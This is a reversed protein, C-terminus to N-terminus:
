AILAAAFERPSASARGLLGRLAAEIRDSAEVMLSAPASVSPTESPTEAASTQANAEGLAALYGRLRNLRALLLDRDEPLLKPESAAAIALVRVWHICVLVGPLADARPVLSIMRAAHMPLLAIRLDQMAQDARRMAALPATGTGATLADRSADIVDLLRAILTLARTRIHHSTPLPVIWLATIFTACAGIATEILRTGVISTVSDGLVGYVLGLMLTLFFIGVAYNYLVFYAWGFLCIMMGAIVLAPHTPVFAAVCLGALAGCATGAIRLMGKQVTDGASTTGLSIVFVTIIAWYWHDPSLPYGACTAIASACITRLMARWALPPSAQASSVANKEGAARKRGMVAAARTLAALAARWEAMNGATPPEDVHLVAHTVAVELNTLADVAAKYGPLDGLTLQAQAAVVARNLQMLYRELRRANRNPRRAETIVRDAQAAISALMLHAVSDPSDPLLHMMVLCILLAPLMLALITLQNLLPPHLFIGLYYGILVALGIAVVRGGYTQFLAALALVALFGAMSVYPWRSLTAAAVFGFAGGLFALAVTVRRSALTVDRTFLMSMMVMLIAPSCEIMPLGERLLLPIIIVGTIVTALTTRVAATFQLLGSDLPM